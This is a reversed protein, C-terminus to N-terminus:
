RAFYLNNGNIVGKNVEVVHDVQDLLVGDMVLEVASDLSLIPLKDDVPLGDGDELLLIGSADFPTISTSLINYRRSADEGCHHLGPSVQLTPVFPDNVVGREALADMNTIPTFWSFYSLQELNDGISRYWWSSIGWGLDDMVLKTNYLPEHGCDMGDNGSLFSSSWPAAWLMMGADVASALAPPLTMGSSFLFSVPVAKYTGVRIHGSHVQRAVQLFSGAIVVDMHHGLEPMWPVVSLCGSSCQPGPQRRGSTLLSDWEEVKSAPTPMERLSLKTFSMEQYSLSYLLLTTSRM